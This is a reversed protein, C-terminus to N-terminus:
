SRMSVLAVGAGYKALIKRSVQSLEGTYSVRHDDISESSVGSREDFISAAVELVVGKIDDPPSTAGYTITVEIDQPYSDTRWFLKRYLSGDSMLTYDTYPLGGITVASVATIPRFPLWLSPGAFSSVKVTATRSTFAMGTEGEVFASATEIAQEATAADFADFSQKLHTALEAATVLM